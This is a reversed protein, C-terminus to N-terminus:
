GPVNMQRLSIELQTRPRLPIIVRVQPIEKDQFRVTVTEQAAFEDPQTLAKKQTLCYGKGFLVELDGQSLHIHRASIEVPIKVPM